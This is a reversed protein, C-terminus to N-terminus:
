AAANVAPSYPQFFEIVARAFARPRTLFCLHGAGAICVFRADPIARSMARQRSPRAICDDQGAVVLTPTSVDRLRHWIDFESLLALRHAMVSQDTSWCLTTVFEFLPGISERRGFLLRFFQNVFPNDHPLPFEALALRLIRAGLSDSFQADLGHLVLGGAQHRHALAFELAIASGFSIGVVAPRQLLLATQLDALDNALDTLGYPRRAVRPDHEGRLQYSIVQFRQALEQILRGMLECGGALGPVLVLPDGEGVALYECPYHQLHVV